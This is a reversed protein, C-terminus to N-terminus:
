RDGVLQQFRRTMIQQREESGHALYSPWAVLLLRLECADLAASFDADRCLSRSAAYASTMADRPPDAGAFEARQWLFVLEDLGVSLCVEQWDVWLTCGGKGRLLNGVHCDGHTLVTGLGAQVDRAAALREGARSALATFGHRDWRLVANAVEESSPWPRPRLWQPRPVDVQHLRSLTAAVAVWDAHSLASAPPYPEYAALLLRVADRDHQAARVEPLFDGLAGALEGYVALERVARARWSPEETVKLVARESGLELLFVQSGSRGGSLRAVM